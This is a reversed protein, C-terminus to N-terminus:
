GSAVIPTSTTTISRRADLERADALPKDSELFEKPDGGTIPLLLCACYSHKGHICYNNKICWSESCKVVYGSSKCKLCGDLPRM